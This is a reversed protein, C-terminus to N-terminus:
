IKKTQNIIYVSVKNLLERVEKVIKKADDSIVDPLKINLIEKACTELKIKDPQNALKKEELLKAKKDAEIKLRDKEEKDKKAQLEKEIKEREIAEAKLKENELRIREREAKEEEIKRLKEEEAKKEDEIRKNYTDIIGKLYNDFVEKQMTGLGNPFLSEDLYPKLLEKREIELNAIKEKEINIFHNEVKDLASEIQTIIENNKNKWSDVFRGGALYYAKLVKHIKDTDTRIHQYKIRLERAQKTLVPTIETEAIIKKYTDELKEREAIVPLFGKEVETAEVETLGFEKPDVLKNKEEM